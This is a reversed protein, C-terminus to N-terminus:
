WASRGIQSELWAQELTEDWDVKVSRSREDIRHWELELRSEAWEAPVQRMSVLAMGRAERVRWRYKLVQKGEDAPYSCM